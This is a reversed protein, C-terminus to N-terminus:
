GGDGTEALLRGLGNSIAFLEVGEALAAGTDPVLPNEWIDGGVILASSAAWPCDGVVAAEGVDVLRELASCSRNESISASPLPLILLDSNSFASPAAPSVERLSVIDRLLISLSPFPETLRSSIDDASFPAPPL